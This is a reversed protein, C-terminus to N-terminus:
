SNQINELFKMTRPGIFVNDRSKSMINKDTKIFKRFYNEARMIEGRGLSIDGLHFLAESNNNNKNYVILFCKKAEDYKNLKRYVYGLRLLYEENKAVKYKMKLDRIIENPNTISSDASYYFGFIFVKQQTPEQKKKINKISKKNKINSKGEVLDYLEEFDYDKLNLVAKTKAFETLKYRISNCYVCKVEVPFTIYWNESRKAEPNFKQSKMYKEEIIIRYVNYEYELECDVCILNVYYDDLQDESFSKEFENNLDRMFNRNLSELEKEIKRKKKQFGNQDYLEILALYVNRLDEITTLNPKVNKAKVLLNELEAFNDKEGDSKLFKYVELYGLYDNPFKEIVSRLLKEGDVKESNNIQLKAKHRIITSKIKIAKTSEEIYASIINEWVQIFGILFDQYKQSFQVALQYLLNCFTNIWYEIEYYGVLSNVLSKPDESTNIAHQFEDWLKFYGLFREKINENDEIEQLSEIFIESCFKDPAIKKWLVDIIYSLNNNRNDDLDIRSRIKEVFEKISYISQIEDIFNDESLEIGWNNIYQFLTSKNKHNLRDWPSLRTKDTDNNIQNV